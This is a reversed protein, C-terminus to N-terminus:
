FVENFDYRYNIGGQFRRGSLPDVNVGNIRIMAHNSDLGGNVIQRSITVLILDAKQGTVYYIMNMALIAIDDCDGSGRKVTSEPNSGYEGNKDTSSDYEINERIWHYVDQETELGNWEETYYLSKGCFADEYYLDCVMDCGIFSFAFLVVILMKKM